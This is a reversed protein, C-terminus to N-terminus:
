GAASLSGSEAVTVFSKILNWDIEAM